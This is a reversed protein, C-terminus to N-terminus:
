GVIRLRIPQEPEKRKSIKPKKFGESTYRFSGNPYSDQAASEGAAILDVVRSLCILVDQGAVADIEITVKL